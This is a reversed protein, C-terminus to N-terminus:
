NTAARRMCRNLESSVLAELPWWLWFCLACAIARLLKQLNSGAAALVVNIEDGALGKLFCRGMRNDTKLHGIKPEV